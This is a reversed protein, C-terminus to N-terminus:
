RPSKKIKGSRICASCVNMTKTGSGTMVRVSQINANFIRKNNKVVHTGIGGKKKPMGRRTITGGVVRAKGCIECAKSM